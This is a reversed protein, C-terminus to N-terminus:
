ERRVGEWEFAHRPRRAPTMLFALPVEFADPVEGPSLQLRCGPAVLAAVPRVICGPGTVYVPLTGVVATLAMAAPLTWWFDWGLKTTLVATVYAGIAYFGVHGFSVQGTLGFLVNLGVGVLM